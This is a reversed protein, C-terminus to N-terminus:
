RARGPVVLRDRTEQSAQWAAKLFGESRTSLVLIVLTLFMFFVAAVWEMKPVFLTLAGVIVIAAVVGAIRLVNNSM